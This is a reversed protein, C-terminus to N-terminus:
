KTDKIKNFLHKIRVSMAEDLWTEAISLNSISLYNLAPYAPDQYRSEVGTQGIVSATVLDFRSMLLISGFICIEIYYYLRIDNTIIRFFFFMESLSLLFVIIILITKQFYHMNTEIDDNLHPQM